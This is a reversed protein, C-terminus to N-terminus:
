APSGEIQVLPKGVLHEQRAEHFGVAMQTFAAVPAPDVAPKVISSIGVAVDPRAQLRDLRHDLPQLLSFRPEGIGRPRDHGPAEIRNIEALPADRSVVEILDRGLPRDGDHLGKGRRFYDITDAGRIVGALRGHMFVRLVENMRAGHGAGMSKFFRVVDEELLLTVRTKRRPTRAQAIEHWELPIRSTAEITNHLDHELRRLADAMYHYNARQPGTLKSLDPM